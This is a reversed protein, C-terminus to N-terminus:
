ITPFWVERYLVSGGNIQEPVLTLSPFDSLDVDKYRYGVGIYGEAILCYREKSSEQRFGLLTNFGLASKRYGVKEFKRYRGSNAQDIKTL